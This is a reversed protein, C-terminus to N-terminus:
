YKIIFNFVLGPPNGTGSTGTGTASADTNPDWDGAGANIAVDGVGPNAHIDLAPITLAPVSHTHDIAGFTGGLTNGTGAAAKGFPFRGRMDPLNFTTSGDGAGYTTGIISYLYAYTTRSVATGDCLLWGPPASAAGYPMLAGAPIGGSALLHHDTADTHHLVTEGPGIVYTTAGAPSINPGYILETGDATLTISGTSANRYYAWFGAGLTAAASLTLAWTGSCSIERGQDAAVVTYASSKIVRQIDHVHNEAILPVDSLVWCDLASSYKLKAPVDATLDKLDLVTLTGAINKYIRKAGLSALNFEAAKNVDIAWSDGVTHGTLRPFTVSIGETITQPVGTIAVGTTWSGSDKRWKFTDPTGNADITVNIVADAVGTYRGSFYADDIGTGTFTTTGLTGTSDVDPIVVVEMGDILSAM